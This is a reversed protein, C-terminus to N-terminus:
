KGENQTRNKLREELMEKIEKGEEYTNLIEIIVPISMSSLETLCRNKQQRLAGENTKENSIQTISKPKETTHSVKIFNSPREKLDDDKANRLLTIKEEDWGYHALLLKQCRKKLTSFGAAVVQNIEALMILQNESIKSASIEKVSTKIPNVEKKKKRYSSFCLNLCVASLYNFLSSYLYFENKSRAKTLLVEFADQITDEAEESQLWPNIKLILAKLRKRLGESNDTGKSLRISEDKLHLLFYQDKYLAEIIQQPNSPTRTRARWVFSIATSKALEAKQEKNPPYDFKMCENEVNKRVNIEARFGDKIKVLDENNM